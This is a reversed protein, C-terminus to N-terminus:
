VTRRLHNRTREKKEVKGNEGVMEINVKCIIKQMEVYKLSIKTGKTNKQCKWFNIWSTKCVNADKFHM